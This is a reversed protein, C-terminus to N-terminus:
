MGLGFDFGYDDNFEGDDDDDNDDDGDEPMKYDFNPNNYKNKMNAEDIAGERDSYPSCYLHFWQNDLNCVSEITTVAPTKSLLFEIKNLQDSHIYYVGKKDNGYFLIIRDSDSSLYIRNVNNWNLFLVDFSIVPIPKPRLVPVNQIDNSANSANSANSTNSTNSAKGGNSTDHRSLGRLTLFNQSYNRKM